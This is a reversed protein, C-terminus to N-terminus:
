RTLKFHMHNNRKEGALDIQLQRSEYRFRKKEKEENQFCYPCQIGQVFSTHKRDASSLPKRCAGCATYESSPQLGHTVAVRQDFVYCEGEFNSKEAPVDNLYRLIGGELHYIPLKDKVLQVCYSTAKECRIGGTCYMAVKKPKKEQIQHEIWEPFETFSTTHPNVANKFAGVKVEYDNRTDVVLCDPDNLLSDWEDPKVYKGVVQCVQVDDRGMTCIENKVRIRLRLFVHASHYSLRTRAGPFIENLVKLIEEEHESPFSVTGNVGERACLLTGKGQHTSMLKDLKDRLEKVEEDGSLPQDLFRYIALITFSGKSM